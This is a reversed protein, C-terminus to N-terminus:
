KSVKDAEVQKKVKSEASFRAFSFLLFIIGAFLILTGIPTNMIWGVVIFVIAIILLQSGKLDKKM